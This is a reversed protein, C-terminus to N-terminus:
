LDFPHTVTGVHLIRQCLDNESKFLHEGAPLIHVATQPAVAKRLFIGYGAHIPNAFAPAKGSIRFFYQFCLVASDCILAFVNRVKRRFPHRQLAKDVTHFYSFPLLVRRLIGAISLIFGCIFDANFPRLPTGMVLIEAPEQHDPIPQFRM